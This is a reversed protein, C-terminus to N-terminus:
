NQMSNSSSSRSRNTYSKILNQLQRGQPQQQQYHPDNNQKVKKIIPLQYNQHYGGTDGQNNQMQQQFQLDHNVKQVVEQAVEQFQNNQQQFQQNINAIQQEHLEIQELTLVNNQFFQDVPQDVVPQNVVPQNVVPQEQQIQVNHQLTPHQQPNPIEHIETGNLILDLTNQDIQINRNVIQLIKKPNELLLTILTIKDNKAINEDIYSTVITILKESEQKTLPQIEGGNSIIDERVAEILREAKRAKEKFNGQNFNTVTLPTVPIKNRFLTNKLSLGSSPHQLLTLLLDAATQNDQPYYLGVLKRILNYINKDSTARAESSITNWNQIVKNKVLQNQDANAVVQQMFGNIQHIPTFRIQNYRRMQQEALIRNAETQLNPDLTVPNNNSWTKQNQNM